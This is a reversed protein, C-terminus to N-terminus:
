ATHKSRKRRWAGFGAAGALVSGFMAIAPPLPVDGPAAAQFNLTVLDLNLQGSGTMGFQVGLATGLRPDGAVVIDTLTELSWKGAGPDSLAATSDVVGGALLSVSAGGSPYAFGDARHGVYFTLTYTGVQLVDSLTQTLTGTAGLFAAQKGGNLNVSDNPVVRGVPLGDTGNANYQTPSVPSYTGYGFSVGSTGVWSTVTDNSAGSSGEDPTEFSNNLISITVAGAQGSLLAAATVM